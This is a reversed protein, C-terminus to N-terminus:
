SAVRAPTQKVLARVRQVVHDVNFGLQEYVVQGPGSEGFRNLGIVDGTDGVIDRWGMTVGAEIAVKPIEPPLVHKRYSEPQSNWLEWSPMSVVRAAIGQEDLASRASVALSVESGTGILIM